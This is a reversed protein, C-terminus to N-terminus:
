ARLMAVLTVFPSFGAISRGAFTRDAPYLYTGGQDHCTYISKKLLSVFMMGDSLAATVIATNSIAVDPIRLAVMKAIGHGPSCNVPM